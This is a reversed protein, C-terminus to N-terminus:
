DRKYCCDCPTGDPLESYRFENTQSTETAGLYKQNSFLNFITAHTLKQYVLLLKSLTLCRFM